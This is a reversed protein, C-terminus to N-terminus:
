AETGHTNKSGLAEGAMEAPAERHHLLDSGSHCVGFVDRLFPGDGYQM